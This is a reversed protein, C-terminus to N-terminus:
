GEGGRGSGKMEAVLREILLRTAAAADGTEQLAARRLEELRRRLGKDQGPVEGSAGPRGLWLKAAEDALDAAREAAEMRAVGREMVFRELDGIDYLFAGDLDNVQREVDGPIAADVLLVPRRRRRKLAAEVRAATLLPPSSGQTTIVIDAAELAADLADFPVLPCKLRRAMQELRTASRGTLVAKGLGAAILAEILLEGMEGPGLVLAQARSLDGHIDRALEVAAAAITAPRAALGTEAGIRQAAELADGVLSELAPGLAGQRRSMERAARLDAAARPDGPVVSEMGAAVHFLHRVAEAGRFAHFRAAPDDAELGARETLVARIAEVAEEPRTHVALVEVREPTAMVLAEGCGARRLRELLRPLAAEDLALRERFSMTSSRHSTGVVVIRELPDPSAPM